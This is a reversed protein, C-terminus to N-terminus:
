VLIIFQKEEIKAIDPLINTTNKGDTRLILIVQVFCVCVPQIDRDTAGCVVYPLYVFFTMLDNLSLTHSNDDDPSRTCQGRIRVLTYLM